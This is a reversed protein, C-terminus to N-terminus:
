RSRGPRQSRATEDPGTAERPVSTTSPGPWSSFDSIIPENHENRWLTYGNPQRVDFCHLHQDEEYVMLLLTVGPRIEPTINSDDCFHATFNHWAGNKEAQVAMTFTQPDTQQLVRINELTIRESRGFRATIAWLDYVLSFGVSIVAILAIKNVTSAPLFSSITVSESTPLFSGLRMDKHERIKWLALCATLFVSLCGVSLLVLSALYLTSSQMM